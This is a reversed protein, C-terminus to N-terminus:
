IFCGERETELVILRRGNGILLELDHMREM